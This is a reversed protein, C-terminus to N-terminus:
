RAVTFYHEAAPRRNAEDIAARTATHSVREPIM